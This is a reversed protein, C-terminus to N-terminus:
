PAGCAEGRDRLTWFRAYQDVLPKLKHFWFYGPGLSWEDNATQVLRFVLDDLLVRDELWILRDFM